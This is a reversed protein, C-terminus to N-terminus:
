PIGTVTSRDSCNKNTVLVVKMSAFATNLVLSVTDTSCRYFLQITNVTSVFRVNLKQPLICVDM